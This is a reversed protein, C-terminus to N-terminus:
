QLKIIGLYAAAVAYGQNKHCNFAGEITSPQTLEVYFISSTCDDAASGGKQNLCCTIRNPDSATRPSISYASDAVSLTFSSLVLYKGAPIVDSPPTYYPINNGQTNPLGSYTAKFYVMKAISGM